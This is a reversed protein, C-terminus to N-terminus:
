GQEEIGVEPKQLARINPRDDLESMKRTEYALLFLANCAAHALHSLGSEPDKEERNHFWANIHRHLAAFVRSYEIGLEWNHEGRKEVGYSLVRLVEEVADWPLLDYRLKGSDEKIGKSPM